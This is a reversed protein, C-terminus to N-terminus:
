VMVGFTVGSLTQMSQDIPAQLTTARLYKPAVIGEDVYVAPIGPPPVSLKTVAEKTGMKVPISARTEYKNLAKIPRPM